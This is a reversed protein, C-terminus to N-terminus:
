QVKVEKGFFRSVVKNVFALGSGSRGIIKGKKARDDDKIYVVGDDEVVEDVKVPYIVNSVFKCVDPNYEIVRVKKSFKEQVKRIMMGGKGIAKGLEGPAVVFVIGEDDKFCDKVLAHTMREFVSSFGLVEQDLKIRM